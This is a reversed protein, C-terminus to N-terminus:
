AAVRIGVRELLARSLEARHKKPMRHPISHSDSGTSTLLNHKKAYALLSETVEPSHSPHVVEIGDLPVDARVNDLLETDYFTFGRERRGPHAILAVGGCRHVTDVTHAMDAKVSVFGSEQLIKLGSHWDSAYGHARLLMINDRPLRLEGGSEHLVEAQKPFEYGKRLLEAYVALTNELQRRVVDDAVERLEASQPDFGYCLVDGMIGNWQTTMEVAVLVPLQKQLAIEQIVPMTDVRDHDTIAVMDFQESRLYEILQEAPWRGDSFTTHMHLDIAADPSLILNTTSLIM